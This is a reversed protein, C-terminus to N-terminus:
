SAATTAPPHDAERDPLHLGAPLEPAPQPVRPLEAHLRQAAALGGPGVVQATRPPTSRGRSCSGRASPSSRPGRCCSARAGGSGGRCRRRGLGRAPRSALAAAPHRGRLGRHAVFECIRELERQPDNLLTKFDTVCWREPPLAELDDLLTATLRLWQETVIEPLPEGALERWGPVLPLSWAPGAWDPLQAYSVRRGKEWVRLMAPITESPDRHIYVFQADPAVGPSSLFACRTGRSATSGACDRPTSGPGTARRQRGPRGQAPRAPGRGGAAPHRGRDPPQQGMRPERARARLHRGPDAVPPASCARAGQGALPLPGDRGIAAARRRIGAERDRAATECKVRTRRPHDLRRSQALDPSRSTGGMPSSGRRGGDVGRGKAAHDEAHDGAEQREIM